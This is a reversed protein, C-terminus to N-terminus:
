VDFIYTAAQEPSEIAGFTLRVIEIPAWRVIVNGIDFVVNKIHESGM